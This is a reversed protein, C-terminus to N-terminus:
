LQLSTGNKQAPAGKHILTVQIPYTRVDGPPVIRAHVTPPNAMRMAIPANTLTFIAGEEKAKLAVKWAISNEDLAGSIIGKKGKLLGYAM